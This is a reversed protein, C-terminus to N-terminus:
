NDKRCKTKYPCYECTKKPVDEPKPPTILNNVYSECDMIRASLEHQMDDTVNYMFCKMDLTDRSIYVFLVEPIRFSLSYAIAQNFHDPNVGTRNWFKNSSETKIELIYYHNKYSIIGDCMFSINLTKHFLKTETGAPSQEKVELYDLERSKIFEPINVWECNMGNNIMDMVATQIRIHTDSGSNCIGIGVYSSTKEDQEAGTRQYFMNRICNMSSPKYTMSPKRHNKEETMEISRKLDNLFDQEVPLETKVADILRCVNKLSNRAM